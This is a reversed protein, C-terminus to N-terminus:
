VKSLINLQREESRMPRTGVVLNGETIKYTVGEEYNPVYYVKGFGQRENLRAERVAVELKEKTPKLEENLEDMFRKKKDELEQLKVNYQTIATKAEDLEEASLPAHYEEEKISFAHAELWELRGNQTLGDLIGQISKNEVSGEAQKLAAASKAMTDTPTPKFHFGQHSVAFTLVIKPEAFFLLFNNKV